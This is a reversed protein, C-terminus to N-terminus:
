HRVSCGEIYAFRGTCLLKIFGLDFDKDFFCARVCSLKDLRFAFFLDADHRGFSSIKSLTRQVYDTLRCRRDRAVEITTLSNLRESGPPKAQRPSSNLWFM